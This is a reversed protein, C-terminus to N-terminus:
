LIKYFGCPVYTWSTLYLVLFFVGIVLLFKKLLYYRTVGEPAVLGILLDGKVPSVAPFASQRAQGTVKM